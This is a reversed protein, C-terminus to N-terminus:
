DSYQTFGSDDTSVNGDGISGASVITSVIMFIAGRNSMEMVKITQITLKM